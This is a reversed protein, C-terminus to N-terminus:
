GVMAIKTATIEVFIVAKGSPVVTPLDATKGNFAAGSWPYVKLDELSDENSVISFTGPGQARLLVGDASSAVTGVAFIGAPAPTAGGQTSGAATVASSTDGVITKLNFGRAM